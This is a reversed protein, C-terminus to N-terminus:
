ASVKYKHAKTWYDMAYADNWTAIYISDDAYALLGKDFTRVYQALWGPEKRFDSYTLALKEM